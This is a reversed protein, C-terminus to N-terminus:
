EENEKRAVENHAVYEACAWVILNEFTTASCVNKTGNFGAISNLINGDGTSDAMEQLIDFLEDKHQAYLACTDSYYTLHPFGGQCGHNVIDELYDALEIKIFEAFTQKM